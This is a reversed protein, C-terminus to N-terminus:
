RKGQPRGMRLLRVVFATFGLATGLLLLWPSSGFRTDAWYGIGAGILLAFVAELAGQYAAGERRARLEHEDREDTM